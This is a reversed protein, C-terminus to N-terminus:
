TVLVIVGEGRRSSIGADTMQNERSPSGGGRFRDRHSRESTVPIPGPDVFVTERLLIFHICPPLRIASIINELNGPPGGINPAAAGEGGEGKTRM